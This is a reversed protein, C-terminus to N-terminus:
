ALSIAVLRSRDACVTRSKMLAIKSLSPTLLRPEDGLVVHWLM